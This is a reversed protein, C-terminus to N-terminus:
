DKMSSCINLVSEFEDADKGLNKLVSIKLNLAQLYDSDVRYHNDLFEDLCDSALDFEGFDCLKKSKSLLQKKTIKLNMRIYDNPGPSYFGLFYYAYDTPKANISDKFVEIAEDIRNLKVLATGKKNLLKSLIRNKFKTPNALAKEYCKLAKDYDGKAFYEDGAYINRKIKPFNDIEDSSKKLLLKHYDVDKLRNDSKIAKKYHRLSKVYHKQAFFAKSKFFLAEGYEPDYYLVRDLMEIAKPHKQSGLLKVACELTNRIEIEKALHRKLFCPNLRNFQIRDIFNDDPSMWSTSIDDVSFKVENDRMFISLDFNYTIKDDELSSIFEDPINLLTM